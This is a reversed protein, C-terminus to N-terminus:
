SRGARKTNNPAPLAQEARRAALRDQALTVKRAAEDLGDRHAQSDALKQFAAELMQRANQETRLMQAEASDSARVFHGARQAAAATVIQGNQWSEHLRTRYAALMQRQQAVSDLTANHRQIEELVKQHRTAAILDLREITRLKM